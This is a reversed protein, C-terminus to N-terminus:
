RSFAIKYKEKLAKRYNEEGTIPNGYENAVCLVDNFKFEVTCDLKKALKIADAFATLIEQGADFDVKITM